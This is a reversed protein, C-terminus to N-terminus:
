ATHRRREEAVWCHCNSQFIDGHALNAAICSGRCVSLWGCSRCIDHLDSVTLSRFYSLFRSNEWVWLFGHERVNGAEVGAFFNCPLLEGTSTVTCYARAGDCGIRTRPDARDGPPAALTCEFEMPAVALAGEDQRGALYVTVEQMEQPSVELELATAGRGSPVFPLIRFTHAGLEAALDYLAPIEQVNLKTVAAAVMVPVGAEVLHGIGRVARKWTGPVQRFEDHVAATAGDLSVQANVGIDALRRATEKTVLTGNTAIQQALGRRAAHEAIAFFDPRLLPEGGSLILQEISLDALEDTLQHCEDLSLEDEASRGASVVCHRCSLNCAATLDWLVATPPLPRQWELPQQRWWLVGSDTLERLLAESLETVQANGTQYVRTLEAVIEGWTRCGDCLRLLRHADDNLEHEGGNVVDRVVWVDGNHITQLPFYPVADGGFV